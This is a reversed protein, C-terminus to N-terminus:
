FPFVSITASVPTYAGTHDNADTHVRIGVFTWAGIMTGAPVSHTRTTGQQWNQAELITTSNPARFQIDFYLQSTLNSGSVTATYSDGVRVGGASLSLATVAPLPPPPDVVIQGKVRAHLVCHYSVFSGPKGAKVTFSAGPVMVGTDFCADDAVIHHLLQDSNYVTM